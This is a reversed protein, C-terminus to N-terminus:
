SRNGETLDVVAVMVMSEGEVVPRPRAVNELGPGCVEPRRVIEVIARELLDM